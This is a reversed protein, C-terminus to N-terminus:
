ILVKWYGAKDGSERRLINKERLARIRREITRQELCLQEALERATVHPDTKMNWLIQLALADLNVNVGVNAQGMKSIVGVRKEELKLCEDANEGFRM